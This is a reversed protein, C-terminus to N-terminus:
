FILRILVMTEKVQYNEELVFFNQYGPLKGSSFARTCYGASKKSPLPQSDVKVGQIKVELCVFSSGSINVLVLFNVNVLLPSELVYFCKVILFYFLSSISPLGWPAIGRVGGKGLGHCRQSGVELLCGPSAYYQIAEM